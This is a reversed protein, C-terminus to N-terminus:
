DMSNAIRKSKSKYSKKFLTNLHAYPPLDIIKLGGFIWLDEMVHDLLLFKLTDIGTDYNKEFHQICQSKLISIRSYIQAITEKSGVLSTKQYWLDQKITKYSTFIETLLLCDKSGARDVYGAVFTFITDLGKFIKGEMMAIIIKWNWWVVLRM